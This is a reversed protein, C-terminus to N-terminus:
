IGELFTIRDRVAKDFTRPRTDPIYDFVRKLTHISTITNIRDKFKTLQAIKGIASLEEDTLANTLDTSQISENYPVLLGSQIAARNVQVFVRKEDESYLEIVDTEYNFSLKGSAFDYYKEESRLVFTIQREPKYPDIRWGSVVYIPVKKWRAVIRDSFAPYINHKSM